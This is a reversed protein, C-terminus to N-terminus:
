AARDAVRQGRRTIVHDHVGMLAQMAGVLYSRGNGLLTAAGLGAREVNGVGAHRAGRQVRQQGLAGDMRHDVVGADVVIRRHGAHGVLLPVPHDVHRQVAKEVDGLRQQQRHRARTPL